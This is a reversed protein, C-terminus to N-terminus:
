KIASLAQYALILRVIKDNKSVSVHFFENRKACTTQQLCGPPLNHDIGQHHCVDGDHSDRYEQVTALCVSAQIQVWGQHVKEAKPEPHGRTHDGLFPNGNMALVVCTTLAIPIWVRGHDVPNTFNQKTTSLEVAM